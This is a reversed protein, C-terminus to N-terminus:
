SWGCICYRSVDSRLTIAGDMGSFVMGLFWYFEVPKFPGRSWNTSRLQQPHRNEIPRTTDNYIAM